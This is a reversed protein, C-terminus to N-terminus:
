HRAQHPIRTACLKRQLYQEHQCNNLSGHNQMLESKASSCALAESVSELSKTRVIQELLCGTVLVAEM